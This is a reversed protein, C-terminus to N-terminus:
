SGGPIFLSPKSPSPSPVSCISQSLISPSLVLLFQILLNPMEPILWFDLVTSIRLFRHPHCYSLSRAIPFISGTQGNKTVLCAKWHTSQSILQVVCRLGLIQGASLIHLTLLHLLISSIALWHSLWSSIWAMLPHGGRVILLIRRCKFVPAM